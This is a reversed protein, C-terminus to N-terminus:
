HSRKSGSEENDNEQPRNELDLEILTDARLIGCHRCFRKRPSSAERTDHIRASQSFVKLQFHDGGKKGSISFSSVSGHGSLRLSWCIGKVESLLPQSFDEAKTIPKSDVILLGGL